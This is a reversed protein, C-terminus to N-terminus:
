DSEDDQIGLIGSKMVTKLNFRKGTRYNLFKKEYESEKNLQEVIDDVEKREEEDLDCDMDDFSEGDLESPEGSFNIEDFSSNETDYNIQGSTACFDLIEEKTKNNFVMKQTLFYVAIEKDTKLLIDMVIQDLNRDSFTEYNKFMKQFFSNLSIKKSDFTENLASQMADFYLPSSWNLFYNEMSCFSEKVNLSFKNMKILVRENPLLEM